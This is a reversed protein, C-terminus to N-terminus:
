LHETDSLGGSLLTDQSAKHDTRSTDIILVNRLFCGIGLKDFLNILIRLLNQTIVYGLDRFM